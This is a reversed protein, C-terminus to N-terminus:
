KTEAICYLSEAGRLFIENGAIAPSADIGEDLQNTALVEYTPGTDAAKSDKDDSKDADKNSEAKAKKAAAAADAGVHKIVTTTGNRGVLYVRGAAAVPSAYVNQLGEVRKAEVIPEGTTADYCSLVANNGSFFYLRNDYLLPSPVYPTAKSLQFVISDTKTLDGSGGLRIARLAAGRFGSMLYVMDGKGVPSPIANATLGEAEWIQEGTALDYSRSRGTAGIIVEVRGNHEVVLPTGWTTKEDRPKRWLEDGTIKDFAAIFDEDEHDWNVIVTNKYLAPSSGEGFGNATRMRGLDKSWLLNGNMDYCHLGRSGFYAIVHQGDTVPSHSAFGHDRHHGEHPLEERAIKEWVTKGTARDICLLVFQHVETPPAGRGFGGGGGRGGRGGQGFGGPGGPGGPGRGGPGRDGGQGFGGRGGRRPEDGKQEDGKPADSKADDKKVGDSVSRAEKKADDQTAQALLIERGNTRESAAAKKAEDEKAPPDAKKGTNIATQIFIKDQWIIPTSSGRGPLKVKWKVNKTESWELPPNADHVAGSSDPGRWKPWNNTAAQVAAAVIFLAAVISTLPLLRSSNRHM